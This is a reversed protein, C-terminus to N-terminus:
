CFVMPKDNVKLSIFGPRTIQTGHNALHFVDSQGTFMVPMESVPWKNRQCLATSIPTSKQQLSNKTPGSTHSRKLYSYPIEESIIQKIEQEQSSPLWPTVEPGGSNCFSTNRKRLSNGKILIFDRASILFSHQIDSYLLTHKPQWQKRHAWWGCHSMGPEPFWSGVNNIWM